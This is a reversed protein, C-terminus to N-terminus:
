KASASALLQSLGVNVQSRVWRVLSRVEELELGLERHVRGRLEAFLHSRAAAIRRSATSKNVGYMTAIREVTFGNVFYLRLVSRDGPDMAALASRFVAEFRGRDLSKNEEIGSSGIIREFADDEVPTERLAGRRENLAVRVATVRLWATLPAAGEYTSIRPPTGLLLRERLHQLLEDVSADDGFRRLTPRVTPLLRRELYAIAARDGQACAVALMLDELVVPDPGLAALRAGILGPEFSIGPARQELVALAEFIREPAFQPAARSIAEATERTVSVTKALECTRSLRRVLPTM